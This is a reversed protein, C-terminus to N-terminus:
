ISETKYRKCKSCEYHNEYGLHYKKGGVFHRLEKKWQFVWDHECHPHPDIADNM